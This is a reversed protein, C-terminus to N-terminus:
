EKKCFEELDRMSVHFSSLFDDPKESFWQTLEPVSIWQVNEVEHKQIVLDSIELDRRLFYEQYFFFHEGKAFEHQGVILDSEQITIGIEEEAEKVINSAYTEGEEVTGAVSIAWKLAGHKKTHARQVLLVEGKGNVIWLGSARLIDGAVLEDKTKYGVIEDQNNAVAYKKM